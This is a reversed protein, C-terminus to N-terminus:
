ENRSSRAATCMSDFWNQATMGRCNVLIGGLFCFFPTGLVPFLCKPYYYCIKIKILELSMFHKCQSLHLCLIWDPTKNHVTNVPLELLLDSQFCLSQPSEGLDFSSWCVTTYPSDQPPSDKLYRELNIGISSLLVRCDTVIWSFLLFCLM